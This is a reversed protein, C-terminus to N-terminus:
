FYLKNSSLVDSDYLNDYLIFIAVFFAKHIQYKKLDDCQKTCLFFFQSIVYKVNKIKNM